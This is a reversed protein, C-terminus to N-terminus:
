SSSSLALVIGRPCVTRKESDKERRGKHTDEYGTQEGALSILQRAAM